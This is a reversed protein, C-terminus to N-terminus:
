CAASFYRSPIRKNSFTATYVVSNYNDASEDFQPNLMICNYVINVQIQNVTAATTVGAVHVRVWYKGSISNVTDQKWDSPPTFALLGSQTFGNTGDTGVTLTKWGGSGDSYEWTAAGYSGLTQLIFSLKNFKERHGFYMYDTSAGLLTFPSGGTQSATTDDTWTPGTQYRFCKELVKLLLDELDLIRAVGDVYSQMTDIAQPNKPLVEGGVKIVAGLGGIYKNYAISRGPIVLQQTQTGTLISTTLVRPLSYTGYKVM